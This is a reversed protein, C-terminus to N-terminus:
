GEAVEIDAGAPAFLPHVIKNRKCVDRSQNVIDDAGYIDHAIVCAPQSDHYNVVRTTKANEKRILLVGSNVTEALITQVEKDAAAFIVDDSVRQLEKITKEVESNNAYTKQNVAEDTAYILANQIIFDNCSQNNEVIDASGGSADVSVKNNLKALKIFFGFLDSAIEYHTRIDFASLLISAISEKTLESSILRNILHYAPNGILNQTTIASINDALGNLHKLTQLKAVPTTDDWKLRRKFTKLTTNLANQRSKSYSNRQLEKLEMFQLSLFDSDIKKFNLDLDYKDLTKDDKTIHWGGDDIKVEVSRGDPLQLIGHKVELAQELGIKTKEVDTGFIYGQIKFDINGLETDQSKSDDALFDSEKPKKDRGYKIEKVAFVIGRFKCYM